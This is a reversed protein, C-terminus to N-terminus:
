LITILLENHKIFTLYIEYFNDLRSIASFCIFIRLLADNKSYWPTILCPRAHDFRDDLGEPNM